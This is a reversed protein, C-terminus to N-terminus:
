LIRADGAAANGARNETPPVTIIGGAVLASDTARFRLVSEAAMPLDAMAAVGGPPRLVAVLIRRAQESNSVQQSKAQRSLCAMSADDLGFVTLDNAM